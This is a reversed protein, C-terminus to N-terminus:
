YNLYKQAKTAWAQTVFLTLPYHNLAQGPLFNTLGWRLWYSHITAHVQWGLSCPSRPQSDWSGSWDSCFLKHSHMETSFFSLQHQMDTM